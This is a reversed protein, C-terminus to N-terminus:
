RRTKLFKMAQARVVAPVNKSRALTQLEKKQLHPVLRASMPTPTKPNSTLGAKVQYIRTWNNKRDKCIHGLVAEHTVKSNVAEIVDPEQTMPSTIASLAVLRNTHRLLVRRVQKNGKTAYALLEPLNLRRLREELPLKELLDESGEEESDEILERGEIAEREEASLARGDLLNPDLDDIANAAAMREEGTLRVYADESEKIGARVIGNRVLFDVVRDKTSASVKENAILEDAIDPRVLLRRQNDAIIEAPGANCVKAVQPFAEVPTQPNLLLPQIFVENTAHLLALHHLVAPPLSEDALVMGALKSDLEQLSREAAKSVAVEDDFTLFFQAIVLDRPVLRPAAGKAAMMKLPIPASPQVHQRVADSAASIDIPCEMFGRNDVDQVVHGAGM